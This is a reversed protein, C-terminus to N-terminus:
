VCLFGSTPLAQFFVDHGFFINRGHFYACRAVELSIFPLQTPMTFTICPFDLLLIDVPLISTLLIKM